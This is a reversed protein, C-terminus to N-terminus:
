KKRPFNIMKKQYTSKHSDKQESISPKLLDLLTGSKGIM